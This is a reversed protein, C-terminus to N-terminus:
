NSLQMSLQIKGVNKSQSSNIGPGRGKLIMFLGHIHASFLYGWFLSHFLKIFCVKEYLSTKFDTINEDYLGLTSKVKGTGM